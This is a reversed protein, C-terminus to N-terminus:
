GLLILLLFPILYIDRVVFQHLPLVEKITALENLHVESKLYFPLLSNSSVLSSRRMLALMKSQRFHSLLSDYDDIVLSPLPKNIRLSNSQCCNLLIIKNQTGLNFHIFKRFLLPNPFTRDISWRLCLTLYLHTILIKHMYLM